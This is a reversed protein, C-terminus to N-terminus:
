TKGYNEMTETTEQLTDLTERLKGYNGTHANLTERLKRYSYEPKDYNETTEQLTQLTNDMSSFFEM